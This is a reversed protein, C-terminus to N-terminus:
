YGRIKDFKAVIEIAEKPKMADKASVGLNQLDGLFESYQGSTMLEVARAVNEQVAQIESEKFAKPNKSNQKEMSNLTKQWEAVEKVNIM